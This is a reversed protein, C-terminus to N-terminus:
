RERNSNIKTVNRIITQKWHTKLKLIYTV